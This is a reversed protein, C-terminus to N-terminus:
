QGVRIVIRGNRRNRVEIFGADSIKTVAGGIKQGNVYFM